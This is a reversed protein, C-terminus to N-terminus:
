KRTCCLFVDHLMPTAANCRNAHNQLMYVIEVFCLRKLVEPEVTQHRFYYLLSKLDAELCESRRVSMLPLVMALIDDM